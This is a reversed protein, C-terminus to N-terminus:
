GALVFGTFGTIEARVEDLDELKLTGSRIWPDGPAEQRWLDLRGEFEIDDSDATGSGDLDGETVGYDVNLRAPRDPDFTLGSPEFDFLFFRSDFRVVIEISDGTVFATGDPRRLLSQADVEFRLFDEPEGGAVPIDVELRRDEGRVAWFRLEEPLTAAADPPLPLFTLQATNVTDPLTGDVPGTTDSCASLPVAVLLIGRILAGRLM